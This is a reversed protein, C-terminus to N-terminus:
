GGATPRINQNLHFLNKPDYKNKLAALRAYAEPGYAAEVRRAGEDGSQGLYNVYVRSSTKSALAESVRQVWGIHAAETQKESWIGLILLNFRSARHNFATEGAPVRTVAGGLQEIAIAALPSPAQRVQEVIAGIGDGDLNELFSSRWYNQLGAPFGEDFMQQIQTYRMPAITDALPSGFARLPRLLTEGEEPPGNYCVALTVVREGAPSTVFLLMTGLADPAERTFTEYFGFFDVAQDLPHILLGGLVPGVPHGRYELSTAVGFNGGGGRLGWFLDANEGANATVLEGAATVLDVSLLNDCALGYSGMLWGLGGGLTLGAIGTSSILGGTTALGFAEAEYDLDKWLAGGEARLSQRKPDIRVSRMLSLDLMLGGDCVANGSVNHGGGRVALVLGSERAFGVAQIVDAVGAARVILAPRKDIMGNFVTRAADYTEDGPRLLQGRLGKAFASIDSTTLM